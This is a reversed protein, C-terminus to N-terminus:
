CGPQVRYSCDSAAKNLQEGRLSKRKRLEKRCRRKIEPCLSISFSGMGATNTTRVARELVSSDYRELAKQAKPTGIAALSVMAAKEVQPPQGDLLVILVPVAPEYLYKGLELAAQARVSAYTNSLSDMLPGFAKDSYTVYSGLKKVANVRERESATQVTFGLGPIQAKADAAFEDNERAKRQVALIKKRMDRRIMRAIKTTKFRQTRLRHFRKQRLNPPQFGSVIVPGSSIPEAGTIVLRNNDQLITTVEDIRTRSGLASLGVAAALRLHQKKSDLADLLLEEGDFIGQYGVARLLPARKKSSVDSDGLSRLVEESINVGLSGLLLATETRVVRKEAALIRTSCNVISWRRKLNSNLYTRPGSLDKLEVM